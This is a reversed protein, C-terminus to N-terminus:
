KEPNVDDESFVNKFLKAVLDNMQGRRIAEFIKQLYTDLAHKGSYFPVGLHDRIFLYM